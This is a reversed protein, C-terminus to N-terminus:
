RLWIRSSLDQYCISRLWRLKTGISPSGKFTLKVNDANPVFTPSIPASPVISAPPVSSPLTHPPSLNLLPRRISPHTLPQTWANSALPAPVLLSIRPTTQVHQPIDLNPKPQPMQKKRVSTSNPKKKKKRKGM